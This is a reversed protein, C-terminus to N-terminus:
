DRGRLKALLRLIELYLWVLSVMLGFSFYWEQKKEVGRESAQKIAEFDIIFSITAIVVIFISIGISLPSSDHLFNLPMGFFGGIFSVLYAAVIGLISITIFKALGPSYQIVKFHYAALIGGFCTMTLLVAQIVIGPYAKELFASTGGLFLGQCIAYPVVLFPTAMKGFIIVLALIFGAIAGGMTYMTVDQGQFFLHWTYGFAAALALFLIGTKNIVGNVSMADAGQARLAEERALLPNGINMIIKDLVLNLDM